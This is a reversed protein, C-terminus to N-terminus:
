SAREIMRGVAGNCLKCIATPTDHICISLGPERWEDLADLPQSVEHEKICSARFTNLPVLRGWTLYLSGDRGKNWAKGERYVGWAPLKRKVTMMDIRYAREYAPVFYVLVQAASTFAWGIKDATDVSITEVFVNGTDPTRHDTKYEVYYWTGTVRHVFIRDIGMREQDRTAKRIEYAVGFYKDLEADYLKSGEFSKDFTHLTSSATSLKM